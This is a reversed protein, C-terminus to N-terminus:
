RPGAAITRSTSGRAASSAPADDGGGRRQRRGRGLIGGGVDARHSRQRIQRQRRHGPRSAPACGSFLRPGRRLRHGDEADYRDSKPDAGKEMLFQVIPLSGMYAAASLATIGTRGPLNVQAGREVLLRVVPLRGAEAAQTLATSGDLSQADIPAGHDLLLTVIEVEGAAAARALPKAGLRDRAEVSAGAEILRKVLDLCGKDAASFLAANMEISSPQREIQEYRQEQSRCVKANAFAGAPFLALCSITTALTVAVRFTLQSM